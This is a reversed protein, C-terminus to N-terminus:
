DHRISKIPNSIAAKITHYSVTLLGILLSGVGAIIFIDVGISTRYAFNNLWMNSFYLSVPLAIIFAIGILIAFEKSLLRVLSFTTAGNVKRIGIEKKRNETTYSSLGLLGLCAIFIALISFYEVTTSFKNEQTYLQDFNDDVFSYRLPQGEFQSNWQDEITAITSTMNQSKLKISITNSNGNNGGMQIVLPKIPDYLPRYHFDKVYGIVTGSQIVNGNGLRDLRRGVVDEGFGLAQAASENIIFGASDVSNGVQFAHGEIFEIDLVKEFDHTAFMASFWQQEEVPGGGQVYANEIVGENGPISGGLGAMAVIDHNKLLESKFAQIQPAINFTIDINMIQEQDFGLDKSQIYRLQKFVIGICIVLTISIVFQSIVLGKRLYNKKGKVGVKGKIVETPQFSSLVLAPYSGALLGTLIGIAPLGFLLLPNNLIDLEIEKGTLNNFWPMVAYVVGVAIILSLLCTLLAEGMFQSILMEKYAGMVKRIGVEKARKTSRSTALNMFNIIAILLILVAIISFLYVHELKGNTKFELERASTLHIDDAKQLHLKLGTDSLSEPFNKKVYGDLGARVKEVENDPIVMYLWAAVWVWQTDFFQQNQGFFGRFTEFSCIIDFQLHTNSPLDEVIGVIEMPVANPGNFSITKGLAPVDGFYKKAHSETLIIQNPGKLADTPDGEIFKFDFIELFEHEAFIFDDEIYEEDELKLVTPNGWGSPRFILATKEIEPFDTMMAKKNPFAVTASKSLHEGMPFDEVLRYINSHNKFGKEYSLDDQVYILILLCAAIGLALGLTNILSYYKQNVYSRIAIKIYNKLM